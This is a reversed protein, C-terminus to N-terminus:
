RMYLIVIIRKGQFLPSESKLQQFTFDPPDLMCPAFTSSMYDFLKRMGSSGEDIDDELFDGPSLMDVPKQLMTCFSHNSLNYVNPVVHIEKRKWPWPSTRVEVLKGTLIPNARVVAEIALQFAQTAQVTWGKSLSLGEISVCRKIMDIARGKHIVYPSSSSPEAADNKYHLSPPLTDEGADQVITSHFVGLRHTSARHSCKTSRTLPKSSPYLSFALTAWSWTQHSIILVLLTTSKM